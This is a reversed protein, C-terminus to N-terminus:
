CLASLLDLWADRNSNHEYKVNGQTICVNQSSGLVILKSYGSLQPVRQLWEKQKRMIVIIKQDAIAQKVLHTAYKFSPTNKYLATPITSANVSHYPFYEIAFMNPFPNNLARQLESPKQLWWACGGHILNYHTVPDKTQISNLYVFPHYCLIHRHALNAQMLQRFVADNTFLHERFSDYGPNCCLLYVNAEKDGFYPEPWLELSRYLTSSKGGRNNQPLQCKSIYPKLFTEDGDTLKLGNPSIDSMDALAQWPNPVNNNTISM